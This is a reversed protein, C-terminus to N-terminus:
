QLRRTSTARSGLPQRSAKYVQSTEDVQSTKFQDVEKIGVLNAQRLTNNGLEITAKEKFTAQSGLPQRSAKHMQSTEDVPSPESRDVEKTGVLNAQRLTNDGLEITAKEDFTARSGLPQRSAKYVQSTEDVQSTKFQDVEKIGV